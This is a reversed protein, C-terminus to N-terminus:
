FAPEFCTQGQKRSGLKDNDQRDARSRCSREGRHHTHTVRRSGTMPVVPRTPLAAALCILRNPAISVAERCVSVATCPRINDPFHSTPRVSPTLNREM